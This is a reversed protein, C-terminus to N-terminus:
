IIVRIIKQSQDYMGVESLSSVYALISRDFVIYINSCITPIFLLFAGRFNRFFNYKDIKIKNIIKSKYTWMSLNGVLAALPIILIYIPLDNENNVFTFIAIIAGLKVMTNRTVTKDFAELGIYLWAIDFYSAVLNIFQIIYFVKMYNNGNMLIFITIYILSSSIIMIRQLFRIEYYKESLKKKDDRVLAIERAAYLNLAFMGLTCFFSAVANTSSFVGLDKPSFIKSIYPITIFPLFIIMIQYTSNYLFNRIIKKDM